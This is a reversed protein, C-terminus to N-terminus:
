VCVWAEDDRNETRSKGIPSPGVGTTKPAKEREREKFPVRKRDSGWGQVDGLVAVYLCM